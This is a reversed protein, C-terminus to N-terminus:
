WMKSLSITILEVQEFGKCVTGIGASDCVSHTRCSCPQLRCLMPEVQWENTPFYVGSNSKLVYSNHHPTTRTDATELHFGKQRKSLAEFVSALFEVTM